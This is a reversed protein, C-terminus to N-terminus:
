QLGWIKTPSGWILTGLHFNWRIYPIELSFLLTELSFRPDGVFIQPRWHFDSSRWNFDPPRCRSQPPRWRFDLPRLRFDATELSFRPTELLIRPDGIFIQPDGVLRGHSGGIFTPIRSYFELSQSKKGFRHIEEYRLSLKIVQCLKHKIINVQLNGEPM